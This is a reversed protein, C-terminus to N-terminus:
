ARLTLVPCSAERVVHNATAGFALAGLRTGHAGLVILDSKRENAERVIERYPKGSIVVESVHSYIRAEESVAAELRRRADARLEAGTVPGGPGGMVVPEYLPAPEIVHMVALRADAEEALSEALALAKLSSPSFDVACLIRRFLLPLPSADPARRPITLVPCPSKRLVKETVSGLMLRDFGSRGHTGMVLLDAPLEQALRIIEGAVSGEAVVSRIPVHEAASERVFADLELQFQRLEDPSFVYAPYLGDGAPPLSSTVPPIVHLATVESSYWRAVAV